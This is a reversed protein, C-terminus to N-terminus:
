LNGKSRGQFFWRRGRAWTPDVLGRGHSLKLHVQGVTRAKSELVDAHESYSFHGVASSAVDGSLLRVVGPVDNVLSSKQVRGFALPIQYVLVPGEESSTKETSSSSRRYRPRVRNQNSFVEIELIDTSPNELVADEYRKVVRHNKSKLTVPSLMNTGLIGGATGGRAVRWYGIEGTSFHVVYKQPRPESKERTFLLSVSGNLLKSAAEGYEVHVSRDLMWKKGSELLADEPRLLISESNEVMAGENGFLGGASVYNNSISFMCLVLVISAWIRAAM